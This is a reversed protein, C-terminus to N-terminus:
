EGGSPFSNTIATDKSGEFRRWRSGCRCKIVVLGGDGLNEFVPECRPDTMNVDKNRPQIVLKCPFANDRYVCPSGIVTSVHVTLRMTTLGKLVFMEWGDTVLIVRGRVGIVM